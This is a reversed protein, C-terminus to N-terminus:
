LEEGLLNYLFAKDIDEVKLNEGYHIVNDYKFLENDPKHPVVVVIKKTDSNLFHTKIIENIQTDCLSYGISILINSSSLNKKLHDFIPKYYHREEYHLIKETTGSLFDPYYSWPFNDYQPRGEEDIYEKMLSLHDVGYPLKVATYEKNQFNYVYQDISGHLKYLCFKNEFSNIFRRLRVIHGNNDKVFFPSGMEEFGDSLRGMMADSISLEELLLDHNLSHFHIKDYDKEIEEIFSLFKPYKVYPRAHHVKPPFRTILDALLQNFTNHFNVLLNTNDLEEHHKSRFDNAFREFQECQIQNHEIGKYLDYFVEYDFDSISKLIETNYFHLFEEVFCRDIPIGTWDAKVVDQEDLFMATGDPHILIDDHSIKCLRKNIEKRTPYGDPLSFGAGLIFSIEKM